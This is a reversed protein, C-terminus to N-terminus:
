TNPHFSVDCEFAYGGKSYTKIYQPQKPHEEIKRRIRSIYNDISRDYIDAQAQGQKLDLLMQRSLIVRPNRLFAVLIKFEGSTLRIPAEGDKFLARQSPDLTWPGFSIKSAPVEEAVKSESPSPRRRLVTRVRALLERLDFPKTVYDDGGIELGLIRDPLDLRGTLFIIPTNSIRRIEKCVELGDGSDLVIDLLVLDPEVARHRELAQTANEAESVKLGNSEFYSAISKRLAFEDEVILIHHKKDM